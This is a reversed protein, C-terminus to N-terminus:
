KKNKYRYVWVDSDGGPAVVYVNLESHFFAKLGGWKPKILKDGTTKPFEWDNTTPNFIAIDALGKSNNKRTYIFVDNVSDYSIGTHADHSDILDNTNIKSWENTKLDFSYTGKGSFGYLKNQVPSYRIVQEGPPAVDLKLVLESISKGGNAKITAWTNKAPDHIIEFQLSLYVKTITLHKHIQNAMTVNHAFHLTEFLM